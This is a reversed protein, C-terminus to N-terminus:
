LSIYSNLIAFSVTRYHNRWYTVSIELVCHSDISFIIFKSTQLIIWKEWRWAQDFLSWFMFNGSLEFIFVNQLFKADSTNSAQLVLSALLLVRTLLCWHCKWLRVIIAERYQVACHYWRWLSNLWLLVKTRDGNKGRFDDWWKTFNTVGTVYILGVCQNGCMIILFVTLSYDGKWKVWRTHYSNGIKSFSGFWMSNTNSRLYQNVIFGRRM